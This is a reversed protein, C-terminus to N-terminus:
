FVLSTGLSVHTYAQWAFLWGYTIALCSEGAPSSYRGRLAPPPSPTNNHEHTFPCSIEKLLRSPVRVRVSGRSSNMDTSTDTKNLQLMNQVSSNHQFHRRGVDIADATGSLSDDMTVLVDARHMSNPAQFSTESGSTSNVSSVVDSAASASDLAPSGFCPHHGGGNYIDPKSSASVVPHLASLTVELLERGADMAVSVYHAFM